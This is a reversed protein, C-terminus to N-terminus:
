RSLLWAAPCAPWSCRNSFLQLSICFGSHTKVLSACSHKVNKEGNLMLAKEREYNIERANWPEGWKGGM